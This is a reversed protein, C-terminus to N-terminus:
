NQDDDEEDVLELFTFRLAIGRQQSLTEGSCNYM